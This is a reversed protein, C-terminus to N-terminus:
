FNTPEKKNLGIYKIIREVSMANIYHKLIMEILKINIQKQIYIM